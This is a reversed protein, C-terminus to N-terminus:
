HSYKLIYVNNDNLITYNFYLISFIFINLLLYLKENNFYTNCKENICKM